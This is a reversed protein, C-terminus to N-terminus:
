MICFVINQYRLFLKESTWMFSAELAVIQQRSDNVPIPATLYEEDTFSQPYNFKLFNRVPCGVFITALLSTISCTLSTGSAYFMLVTVGQASIFFVFYIRSKDSVRFEVLKLKFIKKLEYKNVSKSNTMFVMTRNISSTSISSRFRWNWFNPVAIDLHCKISM